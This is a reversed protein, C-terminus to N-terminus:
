KASNKLINLFRLFILLFKWNINFFNQFRFQIKQFKLFAQNFIKSFNESIRFGSVCQKCVVVFRPRFSLFIVCLSYLITPTQWTERVPKEGYVTQRIQTSMATEKVFVFSNKTLFIGTTFINTRFNVAFLSSHLAAREGQKRSCYKTRHFFPKTGQEDQKRITYLSRLVSILVHEISADQFTSCSQTSLLVSLHHKISRRVTIQVIKPCGKYLTEFQVFSQLFKQLIKEFNFNKYLLKWLFFALIKGTKKFFFKKLILKWIEKFNKWCFIGFIRGPQPTNKFNELIEPLITIQVQELQERLM